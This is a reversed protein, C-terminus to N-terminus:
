ILPTRPKIQQNFIYKLYENIPKTLHGSAM